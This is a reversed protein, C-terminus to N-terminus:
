AEGSESMVVAIIDRVQREAFDLGQSSDVVFDARERKEEDPVQKALIAEFKEQTMGPRSLARERQIESPASVVVIRDVSGEAGTEFLLPIDLVVLKQGSREAASLFQRRKLQVLPHVIGELRKLQTQDSLVLEALISRDIAGDVNADPFAASVPVVGEGGRAYLAHVAEDADFVPVGAERFMRATESKGMAISGTLGLTIM